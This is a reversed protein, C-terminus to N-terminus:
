KLVASKASALTTQYDDQQATLTGFVPRFLYYIDSREVGGVTNVHEATVLGNWNTLEEDWDNVTFSIVRTFGVVDNTCSKLMEFEAHSRWEKMRAATPRNAAAEDAATLITINGNIARQSAEYQSFLFWIALVAFAAAAIYQLAKM